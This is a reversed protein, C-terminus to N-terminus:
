KWFMLSIMLVSHVIFVISYAVLKYNNYVCQEAESFTTDQMWKTEFWEQKGKDEHFKKLWDEKLFYGYLANIFIRLLIIAAFVGIAIWISINENKEALTQQLPEFVKDWFNWIVSETKSFTALLVPTDGALFAIGDINGLISFLLFVIDFCKLKKDAYYKIKINIISFILSVIFILHPISIRVGDQCIKPIIYSSGCVIAGSMTIVCTKTKSEQSPQCYYFDLTIDYVGYVMAIFGAVMVIVKLAEGIASLLEGAAFDFTPFAIPMETRHLVYFNVVMSLLLMLIGSLFVFCGKNLHKVKLLSKESIVMDEFICEEDEEEEYEENEEDEKDEENEDKENEEEEGEEEDESESNLDKEEENEKEFDSNEVTGSTETEKAKKEKGTEDTENSEEQAKKLYKEQVKKMHEEYEYEKYDDKMFDHGTLVSLSYESSLFPVIFIGGLLNKLEEIM